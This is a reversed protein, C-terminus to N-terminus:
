GTPKRAGLYRTLEARSRLGLKRLAGTLRESVVSSSLGLEYAILKLSHEPAVLALVHREEPLLALRRGFGCFL